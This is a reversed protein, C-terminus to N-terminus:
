EYSNIVVVVDSPGSFITRTSDGIQEPTLPLADCRIKAPGGSVVALKGKTSLLCFPNGWADVREKPDMSLLSSDPPLQSEPLRVVLLAVKKANMATDYMRAYRAFERPNKQYADILGEHDSSSGGGRGAFLAQGLSGKLAVEADAVQGEPIEIRLHTIQYSLLVAGIAVVLLAAGVVRKVLKRNHMSPM